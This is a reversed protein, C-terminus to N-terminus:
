FGFGKGFLSFLNPAIFSVDDQLNFQKDPYIPACVFCSINTVINNSWMWHLTFRLKNKQLVFTKNKKDNQKCFGELMEAVHLNEMYQKILDTKNTERLYWKSKSAHM